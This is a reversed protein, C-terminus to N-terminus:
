PTDLVSRCEAPLLPMPRVPSPGSTHPPPRQDRVWSALTADCGDGSPVPAQPACAPSGAPCSLRVHFHDDHAFWPRLKHLWSREGAPVSRCLEAKIVPNVFIRDVRPDTAALRLLAVQRAGFRRRDLARWNPLLMSPLDISDRMGVPVLPQRPAFTFWIDVDLGTQHSAHGYPLPGGRPQAMDGILMNPLGIAAARTGLREVFAVTDPHGFFRRRSLHIAEYGPGDAPLEAAGALCGRAFGGIAQAMGPTPAPIRSWPNDGSSAAWAGPIVALAGVIYCLSLLRTM